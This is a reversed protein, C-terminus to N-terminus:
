KFISINLYQKNLVDDVPNELDTSAYTKLTLTNVDIWEITYYNGNIDTYNDSIPITKNETFAGTKTLNYTGGSTRTWTLGSITDLLITAIPATTGSQNLLVTYTYPINNEITTLGSITTFQGYGNLFTNGDYNINPNISTLKTNPVPDIIKNSRAYDRRQRLSLRSLTLKSITM